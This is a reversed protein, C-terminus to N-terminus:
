LEIQMQAQVAKDINGALVEVDALRKLDDIHAAQQEEALTESVKAMSTALRAALEFDKEEVAKAYEMAIPEMSALPASLQRQRLANLEEKLAELEADKQQIILDGKPQPDAASAAKVKKTMEVNSYVTSQLLHIFEVIQKEQDNKRMEALPKDRPFRQRTNVGEPAIHHRLYLPTIIPLEGDKQRELARDFEKRAWHGKRLYDASMLPVFVDCSNLNNELSELWDDGIKINHDTFYTADSLGM